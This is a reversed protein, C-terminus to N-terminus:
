GKAIGVMVLVESVMQIAALRAVTGLLVKTYQLCPPNLLLITRM